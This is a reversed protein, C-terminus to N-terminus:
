SKIINIAMITQDDYIEQGEFIKEVMEKLTNRKNDKIIKSIDMKIGDSTLVIREVHSNIVIKKIGIEDIIGLPLNESILNDVNDLYQVYSNGSGNKYLVIENSFCDYELLDLTNYSDNKTCILNNCIRITEEVGMGLEIFKRLLFLAFRSEECATDGHGMGDSILFYKKNQTSFCMYNDGCRLDVSRQKIFYDFSYDSQNKLVYTTSNTLYNYKGGVLTLRRKLIQEINNMISKYEKFDRVELEVKCEEENFILKFSLIEVGLLNLNEMIEKKYDVDPESKIKNTLFRISEYIKEANKKKMHPNNKIKEQVANMLFNITKNKNVLRNYKEQCELIKYDTPSVVYNQLNIFIRNKLFFIIIGVVFSSVLYDYNKTLAAILLALSDYLIIGNKRYNLVPKMLFVLIPITMFEFFPLETLSVFLMTSFYSLVGTKTHIRCLSYIILNVLVFSINIIGFSINAKLIVANILTFVFLLEGHTLSFKEKSKMKFSFMSMFYTLLIMAFLPFVTYKLDYGLVNIYFVNYFIGSIFSTLIFVYQVPINIKRFLLFLMVSTFFLILSLLLYNGGFIMGAMIIGLFAAFFYKEGYVLRSIAFPLSIIFFAGELDFFSFCLATLITGLILSYRGLKEKM